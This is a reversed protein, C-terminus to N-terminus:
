LIVLEDKRYYNLLTFFKTSTNQHRPPSFTKGCFVCFYNSTQAIILSFFLDTCISYYIGWNNRLGFNNEREISKAKWLWM